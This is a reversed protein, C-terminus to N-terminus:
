AVSGRLRPDLTDRLGDGLVNIAFVTVALAVGPFFAMWPARTVYPRAEVGMMQGWTPDPPQVGYGLFSLPTAGITTAAEVYVEERVSLVAGRVIRSSTVGQYLGIILAISLFSAGAMTVILLLFLIFPIGIAADVIRQLVMDAIGGAYGSIVGVVVAILLGFVVAALGLLLSFRTAVLVRSLIDRGLNDTGFFYGEGPSRLGNLVDTDYPDKPTLAPGIVAIVLGFLLVLAGFTALPQRGAFLRLARWWDVALNMRGMGLERQRGVGQTAM